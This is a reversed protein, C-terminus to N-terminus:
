PQARLVPAAFTNVIGGSASLSVAELPPRAGVSQRWRGRGESQFVLQSARGAAITEAVTRLYVPPTIAARLGHCHSNTTTISANGTAPYACSATSVPVTVSEVPPTSGPTVTVATFSVVPLRNSATVSSAPM